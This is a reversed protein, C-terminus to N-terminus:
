KANRQKRLSNVQSTVMNNTIQARTLNPKYQRIQMYANKYEPDNLLKAEDLPKITKDESADDSVNVIDVGKKATTLGLTKGIMDVAAQYDPKEGDVTLFDDGSRLQFSDGEIAFMDRAKMLDVVAAKQEPSWVGPMAENLNGIHDKLMLTTKLESVQAQLEGVTAERKQVAQQLAKVDLGNGEDQASTKLTTIVDKVQDVSDVDLEKLLNSVADNKATSAIKNTDDRTYVRNGDVYLKGDRTEISPTTVAESKTANVEASDTDTANTDTADTTTTDVM